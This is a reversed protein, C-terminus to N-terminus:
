GTADRNRGQMFLAEALEWDEQTDIDIAQLRPIQLPLCRSDLASDYAFFSAKRGLFFIGADHMTGEFEQSRALMNEPFVFRLFGDKTCLARQPAYDFETVPLVFDAEPSRRLLEYADILQSPLLLPATAYICAAYDVSGIETLAHRIVPMMPITDIALNEPRVFPVEAGYHSAIEAIQASDTSVIVREFVGSKLAADISYKIMPEGCFLRINKDPIRKSGGRAPIIAVNM